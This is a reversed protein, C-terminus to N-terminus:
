VRPKIQLYDILASELIRSYNIGHAEATDKLWSPLTVNTKVRRNDYENRVVDPYITIPAILYGPATELDVTPVKSPEPLEDGDKEMGYIHLGLAETADKQAAEFSDGYGICGPVDPFYVSFTDEETPEFVAFYTLKRM